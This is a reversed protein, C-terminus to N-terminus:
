MFSCSLVMKGYLNYISVTFVGDTEIHLFNTAPSPYVRYDELNINNSLKSIIESCKLVYLGSQMDSVLIEGSDFYPYVGWAGRYSIHNNPLYTDYFCKEIPSQPNSIDYVRLGDHYYSIYLYDGTIIANHAM